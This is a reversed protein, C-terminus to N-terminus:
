YESLHTKMIQLLDEANKKMESYEDEHDRKKEFNDQSHLFTLLAELAKHTDTFVKKEATYHKDMAPDMGALELLRSKKM